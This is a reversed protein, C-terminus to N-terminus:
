VLEMKSRTFTEISKPFDSNHRQYSDSVYLKVPIVNGVLGNMSRTQRSRDETLAEEADQLKSQDSTSSSTKEGNPGVGASCMYAFMLVYLVFKLVSIPLPLVQLSECQNKVLIKSDTELIGNLILDRPHIQKTPDRLLGISFLSFM